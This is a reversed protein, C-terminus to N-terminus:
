VEFLALYPAGKMEPKRLVKIDLQHAFQDIEQPTPLLNAVLHRNHSWQLIVNDSGKPHSIIIRKCMSLSASELSTHKLIKVAHTLANQINLFYHLCENFVVSTIGTKLTTDNPNWDMFNIQTFSAEPYTDAAIKIMEKSLDIGHVEYRCYSPKTSKAYRELFPILIGDGCGCDLVTNNPNPLAMKAVELMHNEVPISIKITNHRNKRLSATTDWTIQQLTAHVKENTWGQNRLEERRILKQEIYEPNIGGNKRLRM